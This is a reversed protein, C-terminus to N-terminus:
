YETHTQPTFASAKWVKTNISRRKFDMEIGNARLADIGPQQWQGRYLVGGRPFVIPNYNTVYIQKKWRKSRESGASEWKWATENPLISKILSQRHWIAAEATCRWRPTPDPYYISDDDTDDIESPDAGGDPWRCKCASSNAEVWDLTRTVFAQNVSKTLFYDELM